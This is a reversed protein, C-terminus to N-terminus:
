FVRGLASALGGISGTPIRVLTINFEIKQPEGRTFIMTETRSVERVGFKGFVKGFGSVLILARGRGCEAELAQLEQYGKFVGPYVVGQLTHNIRTHEFAILFKL